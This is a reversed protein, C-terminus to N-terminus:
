KIVAFKGTKNGASSEVVYFYVGYAIDLNEKTKLNWSVAGDEINGEHKLTIVHDGRATFISITALPPVHTFDIKRQGRGSTIGPNLPPEFAAATVYPNPVVKVNLMDMAALAADTRPKTTTFELLDGKRFPKSNHIELRVGTGLVYTTDFPDGLKPSFKIDWTYVLKGSKAKELFVLEDQPSLKGNGDIDAYIFKVYASDTANYVRFNVPLAIPYLDPDPYSTDVITSAFQIVYDSPKRIGRFIL